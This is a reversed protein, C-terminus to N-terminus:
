CSTRCVTRYSEFRYNLGKHTVLFIGSSLIDFDILTRKGAGYLLAAVFDARAM